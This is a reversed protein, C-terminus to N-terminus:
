PALSGSVATTPAIGTEDHRAATSTRFLVWLEGATIITLRIRQARRAHFFATAPGAQVQRREQILDSVFTTDAIM